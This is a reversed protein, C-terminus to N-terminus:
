ERYFITGNLRITNLTEFAIVDTKQMPNQLMLISGPVLEYQKTVVGENSVSTLYFLNSSPNFGFYNETGEQLRVNVVNEFKASASLKLGEESQFNGDFIQFIKSKNGAVEPSAYVKTSAIIAEKLKVRVLEAYDAISDTMFTPFSIQLFSVDSGRRANVTKHVSKKNSFTRLELMKGKVIRGQNTAIKTITMQYPNIDTIKFKRILYVKEKINASRPKSTFINKVTVEKEENVYFKNLWWKQAVNDYYIYNLKQDLWDVASHFTIEDDEASQSFSLLPLLLVIHLLVKRM